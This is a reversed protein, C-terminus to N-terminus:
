RICVCVHVCVCVVFVTLVNVKILAPIITDLTKTILQFSYADDQQLMCSGMFTFISM